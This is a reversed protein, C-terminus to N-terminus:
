SSETVKFEKVFEKYLLHGVKAMVKHNAHNKKLLVYGNTDVMSRLEDSYDMLEKTISNVPLKKNVVSGVVYLYLGNRILTSGSSKRKTSDGSDEAKKGLGLRMKFKDRTYNRSSRKFEGKRYITVEKGDIMKKRDVKVEKMQRERWVKGEPLLFSEFPYIRTLLRAKTRLPFYFKDLIKLYPVFEPAKLIEEIEREIELEFGHIECLWKSQMKTMEDLELNFQHAVSKSYKTRYVKVSRSTAFEPADGLFPFLGAGRGKACEPFQWSLCQRIHNIIPSQIRALHNLWQTLERLRTIAGSQAILYKREDIEGNALLKSKDFPYAALALADILDNKTDSSFGCTRRFSNLASHSVWLVKIDFSDLITSWLRSYHVGTPEIVAYDPRHKELYHCFDIVTRCGRTKKSTQESYFRPFNEASKRSMKHWYDEPNPSPYETLIHCCVDAKSM